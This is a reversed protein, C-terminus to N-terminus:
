WTQYNGFQPGLGTKSPSRLTVQGVIANLTDVYPTLPYKFDVLGQADYCFGGGCARMGLCDPNM